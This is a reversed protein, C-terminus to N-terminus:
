IEAKQIKMHMGWYITMNDNMSSYIPMIADNQWTTKIDNKSKTQAIKTTPMFDM